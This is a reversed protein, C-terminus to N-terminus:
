QRGGQPQGSATYVVTRNAPVFYQAAVRQVDAGTIKDLDDLSTFMRRWDGWNGYFSTVTAALGANDALRRIAAARMQAKARALAEAPAPQQEFRALFDNLAKENEEVTHGGAPVVFFVFLNPFRGDPFTALTQATVAIKKSEVLDANLLGTRGGSFISQLMELVPGDSEHRAPRKYGIVMLTQSAGNIVATKPGAQPPEQVRQFPPSPRAPMPGFYREALRKAEVPNVDGVAAMVMNAPVFYEQWFSRAQSARLKAIESPWGGAPNRYPHEEFATVLLEETLRSQPNSQMRKGYEQVALTREKYFDRFVPHLLRQSEMLFWLEMRNSPLSCDYETSVPSGGAHLGTGGNEQIIRAYQNAQSFAQAHEMAGNVLTQQQYIRGPNMTPWHNMEVELQDYYDEIDELAKKEVAWDVSGISETGKFAMREMMQALGSEGMPDNVSGVNVYTHFSVVPAQHREVVIFHLGNSLSFETVKREFDRLNQASLALPALALIASRRIRV